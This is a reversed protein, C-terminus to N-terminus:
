GSASQKRTSRMSRMYRDISSSTIYRCVYPKPQTEISVEDLGEHVLVVDLTGRKIANHVGQRSIGLKAAVAGPSVGVLSPNAIVAAHYAAHSPYEYIMRVNYRSGATNQMSALENQLISGTREQWSNANAGLM